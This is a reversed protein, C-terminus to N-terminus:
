IKKALTLGLTGYGCGVDLLSKAQEPVFNELLVKSGFDIASKSFVGADSQFTMNIGLLAVKIQKLDHRLDRNDEYYMNTNVM